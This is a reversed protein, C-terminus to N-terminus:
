KGWGLDGHRQPDHRGQARRRHRRPHLLQRRRLERAQGRALHPRQRRHARKQRHHRARHLHEQRHRAAPHRARHRGAIEEPTEYDDLGMIISDKIVRAPRSGAASASSRLARHTADVIICGDAIAAREIQGRVIKSAPLYRAHTYIPAQPTSSISSPSRTSSTSIPTSSPRSRESTRGTARTSTPSFGAPASSTPSSTSASISMSARSRRTWCTATSSTSAWRPSSCITAATSASSAASRRWGDQLTDICRTRRRSKWSAPSGNRATSRCSASPARM